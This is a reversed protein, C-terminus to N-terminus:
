NNETNIDNSQHTYFSHLFKRALMGVTAQPNASPMSPMISADCVYLQEVGHVQFTIPDIVSENQNHGMRCTGVPHYATFTLHQAYCQWYEDSTFRLHTCGPLPRQTLAAGLDQFAPTKILKHIFKLGAVLVDIDDPHSLYQPEIITDVDDDRGLRISVYGRSKPHLVIPLISITSKAILPQFYEKWTRENINFLRRFYVGADITSGMPIIMLGLDPARTDNASMKTRIFGLGECGGMTLPGQGSWLYEIFHKISYLNWPELGISQNLTILDIGTTVHDQLYQGVAPLHKQLKLKLPDDAPKTNEKKATKNTSQAYLNDPGIGSKLLLTPTGITGGALIVAKTARVEYLHGLKRYRIGVAKLSAKTDTADGDFLIREAKADSLIHHHHHEMHPWANYSDVVSWRQGNYQIVKPLKFEIINDDFFIQSKSELFADAVKTTSRLESLEVFDEFERCVFSFAYMSFLNNDKSINSNLSSSFKM